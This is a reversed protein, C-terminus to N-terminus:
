DPKVLFLAQNFEVPQGNEILIREVTGRVESEIENMLKMAEVICVVQGVEVRQNVEVYPPSTPSPARYFTGVMPSNIAVLGEERESPASPEGAPVAAPNPSADPSPQPAPASSVPPHPPPSSLVYTRGDSGSGDGAQKLIRVKTWLRRVELEGIESEEVLKILRRIEEVRM